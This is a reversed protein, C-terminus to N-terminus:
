AKKKSKKRLKEWYDYMTELKVYNPNAPEGKKPKAYMPDKLVEQFLSAGISEKDEPSWAGFINKGETIPIHMKNAINIIKSRPMKLYKYSEGNHYQIYMKEEEPDYTFLAINSSRDVEPIELINSVVEIIDQSPKEIEEPFFSKEKGNVKAIVGKKSEHKIEGIGHPTIVLKKFDVDLPKFEAKKIPQQTIEQPIEKEVQQEIKQQPSVELEQPPKERFQPAVMEEQIDIGPTPEPQQMQRALQQSRASNPHPEQPQQGQMEQQPQVQPQQTQNQVQQQAQAQLYSSYDEVIKELGGEVKELVSIKEKPILKRLILAATASDHGSQLITNFRNDEKLNKVLDVSQRPDIPIPPMGVQPAAKPENPSIIPGKPSKPSKPGQPQGGIQPPITPNQPGKGQPAPLQRQQNPLQRNPVNITAGPRQQMQRQPAPLIQSPRVAQGASGLAHLGTAVGGATGLAAVALLAAKTKREKGRKHIKEHETLYDDSNKKNKKDPETISKLIMDATYGAAQAAHIKNAHQPFQHAIRNLIIRPTYGYLLAQGIYAAM